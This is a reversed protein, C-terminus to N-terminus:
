SNQAAQRSEGPCTGRAWDRPGITWILQLCALSRAYAHPGARSGSESMQRPSSAHGHIVDHPRPLARSAQCPASPPRIPRMRRLNRTANQGHSPERISSKSPPGSCPDQVVPRDLDAKRLRIPVPTPAPTTPTRGAPKSVKRAYDNRSSTWPRPSSSAACAAAPRSPILAGDKRFWLPAWVRCGRRVGVYSRPSYDVRVEGLNAQTWAIFAGRFEWAEPTIADKWDAETRTEGAAMGAPGAVDLSPNIVVTDPVLIVESEGRWARLEIVVLPLYEALAELAPRYRGAASEVVLVAVHTKSDFRTRNRAWYDFVRFSHSADVEGLQVEISYYIDGDAALIDLSGGRPATLEQAIIRVEGLGLRSPDAALWNQLWIEDYGLDRLRAPQGARMPLPQQNNSVDKM